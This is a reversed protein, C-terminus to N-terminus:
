SLQLSASKEPLLETSDVDRDSRISVVRPRPKGREGTEDERGGHSIGSPSFLNFVVECTANSVRCGFMAEVHGAKHASRPSNDLSSCALRVALNDM